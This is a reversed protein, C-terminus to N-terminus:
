GFPLRGGTLQLPGKYISFRPPKALSFYSYREGGAGLLQYTVRLLNAERSVVAASRLPLGLRLSAAQGSEVSVKADFGAFTPVPRLERIPTLVCDVVRYEGAPVSVPGATVDLIAAAAANQLLLYDCGKAELNLAGLPPRNETLAAELMVRGGAPKFAFDLDLAHGALYLRKPVPSVTLLDMANTRQKNRLYLIDDKGIRGDLNDVIGFRWQRGDLELSSAWGSRVWLWGTCGHEYTYMDVTYPIVMDGQVTDVRLGGFVVHGAHVSRHTALRGTVFDRNHDLNLYLEKDTVNRLFWTPPVTPIRGRALEKGPLAPEKEFPPLANGFRFDFNIRLAPSPGPELVLRNSAPAATEGAWALAALAFCVVAVFVLRRSM